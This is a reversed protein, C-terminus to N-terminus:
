PHHRAHVKGQARDRDTPVSTRALLRLAGLSADDVPRGRHRYPWRIVHKGHKRAPPSPATFADRVNVHDDEEPDTLMGMENCLDRMEVLLMDIGPFQPMAEVNDLTAITEMMVVVMTADNM